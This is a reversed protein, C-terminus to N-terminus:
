VRDLKFAHGVNHPGIFDGVHESWATWENSRLSALLIM